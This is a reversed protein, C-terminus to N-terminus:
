AAAVAAALHGEGARSGPEVPQKLAVLALRAEAQRGERAGLVLVPAGVRAAARRPLAPVAELVEAAVRLAVVAAGALAGEAPLVRPDAGVAREAGAPELAVAVAHGAERVHRGLELLAELLGVPKALGPAAAGEPALGVAPARGRGVRGDGATLARAPCLGVAAQLLKVAVEALDPRLCVPCLGSHCHPLEQLAVPGSAFPPLHGDPLPGWKAFIMSRCAASAIHLLLHCGIARGREM